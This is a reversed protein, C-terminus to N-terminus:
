SCVETVHRARSSQAPAAPPTSPTAAREVGGDEPLPAYCHEPAPFRGTRVDEAYERFAKEVVSGVDAYRRVFRPAIDGVFAGLLDHSIVLQGDVHPGAGIGYVPVAVSERVFAAADPPMAELLIAFAGAEELAQADDRIREAAAHTRGQVRYGGLQGLSQPTLGLHGMVAIGADSIARVRGAVRSGGECKVADCGRQIFAGANLVASEDSAQYSLFPLDGIVFARRAARAVAAAFVLMETMGIEV